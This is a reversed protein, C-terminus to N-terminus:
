PTSYSIFNVCAYDISKTQLLSNKICTQLFNGIDYSSCSDPLAGLDM